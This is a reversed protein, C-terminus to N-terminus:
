DPVGGGVAFVGDRGARYRAVFLEQEPTLKPAKHWKQKKVKPKKARITRRKITKNPITRKRDSRGLTPATIAVPTLLALFFMALPFILNFNPDIM